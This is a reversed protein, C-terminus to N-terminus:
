ILHLSIGSFDTVPRNNGSILLIQAGAKELVPFFNEPFRTHLREIRCGGKNSLPFPPPLPPDAKPM